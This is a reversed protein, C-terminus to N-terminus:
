LDVAPLTSLAILVIDASRLEEQVVVIPTHNTVKSRQIHTLEGRTIPLEKYFSEGAFARVERGRGAVHQHRREAVHQFDRTIISQNINHRRRRATTLFVIWAGEKAKRGENSWVTILVL